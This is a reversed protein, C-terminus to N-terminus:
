CLVIVIMIMIISRFITTHTSYRGLFLVVWHRAVLAHLVLPGFVVEELFRCTAIASLKLKIPEILPSLKCIILVLSDQGLLITCNMLHESRIFVGVALHTIVPPVFHPDSEASLDTLFVIHVLVHLVKVIPFIRRRYDVSLNNSTSCSLRSAGCM